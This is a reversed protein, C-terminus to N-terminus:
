GNLAGKWRNYICVVLLVLTATLIINVIPYYPAFVLIISLLGFVFARDSKGMPGNYLREGGVQISIVGIMESLIGLVVISVILEPSIISIYAFPLYLLADSIVDGMENLTCGLRSKMNHEKAIMGDIANLAMRIFLIVPILLLTINHTDSTLVVLGGLLSLLVASITIQNATIGKNVLYICIPRLIMQFKTKLEYISM